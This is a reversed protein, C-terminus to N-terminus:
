RGIGQLENLFGVIHKWILYYAVVAFFPALAAYGYPIHVIGFYILGNNTVELYGLSIALSAGIPALFFPLLAGHLGIPMPWHSRLKIYLMNWLGFVNPVVAMPFIVLREIPAPVHSIFRLKLFVTLVVLLAVTPAVIGAMYARLYPHDKM